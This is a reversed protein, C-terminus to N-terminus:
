FSKMIYQYDQNIVSYGRNANLSNYFKSTIQFKDIANTNYFTCPDVSPHVDLIEIIYFM